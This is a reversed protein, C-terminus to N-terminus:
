PEDAFVGYKEGAHHECYFGCWRPLGCGPERCVTPMSFIIPRELRRGIEGKFHHGGALGFFAESRSVPKPATVVPLAPEPSRSEPPYLSM